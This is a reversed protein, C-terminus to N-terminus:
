RLAADDPDFWSDGGDSSVPLATVIVLIVVLIVDAAVVLRVHEALLAFLQDYIM